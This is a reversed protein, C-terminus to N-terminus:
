QDRLGKGADRKEGERGRWKAAHTAQVSLLPLTRADERGAPRRMERGNKEEGMEQDEGDGSGM